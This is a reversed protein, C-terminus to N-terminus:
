DHHGSGPLGCGPGTGMLGGGIDFSNTGSYTIIIIISNNSILLGWLSHHLQFIYAQMYITGGLSYSSM